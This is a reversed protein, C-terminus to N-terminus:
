NHFTPNNLGNSGLGSFLNLQGDYLKVLQLQIERFYYMSVKRAFPLYFQMTEEYLFDRNERTPTSVNHLRDALKIIKTAFPALELAAFYPVNLAFKKENKTMGPYLRWNKEKTLPKDIAYVDNGFKPIFVEETLSKDDERADHLIAAAVIINTLPINERKYYQIVSFTVPYIHNELVSVGLDRLQRHHSKKAQDLAKSVLADFKLDVTDLEAVLEDLTVTVPEV